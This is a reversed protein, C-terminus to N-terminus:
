RLSIYVDIQPNNPDAARQDYLEYDVHFASSGGLGAPPMAWIRQWVGPVVETVPGRNSTIIAYRGAPVHVTALDDPLNEISSVPAGIHFTFNGTHDSEYVSYVAILSSGLKNPIKAAINSQLFTQWLNGIKGKGSMEDANNTRASIGAVTFGEQQIVM